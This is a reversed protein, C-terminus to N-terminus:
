CLERVLVNNALLLMHEVSLLGSTGGYQKVVSSSNAIGWKLAEVIEGGRLYAGLFGSAFADGAGTTDKAKELLAEAHWVNKGDFVWAGREGDTLVSIKVGFSNMKKLLFIEDNLNGEQKKEFDGANKVIEIAEDKNVFLIECIKLFDVVKQVNEHLMQQRPNFATKIQKEKAQAFIFNLNESWDGSLDCVFLWSAEALMEREIKFFQSAGHSSFIVRDGFNEAVVITSLDSVTKNITALKKIDVNQAELKKAIWNGIEDQGIAAYCGVQEGLKALGCAVNAACGGLTEHRKKIHYKAGLEFALKRQSTIDEPTDLVVAEDTPFFIDKTVSGVCIIKKM